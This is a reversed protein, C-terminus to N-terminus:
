LHNFTQGIRAFVSLCELRNSLGANVNFSLRKWKNPELELDPVTEIRLSRTEQTNVSARRKESIVLFHFPLQNFQIELEYIEIPLLLHTLLALTFSTM